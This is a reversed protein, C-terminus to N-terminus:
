RLEGAVAERATQMKCVLPICQSVNRQRTRKRGQARQMMGSCLFLSGDM